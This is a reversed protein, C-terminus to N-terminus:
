KNSSNLKLRHSVTGVNDVFMLSSFNSTKNQKERSAESTKIIQLGEMCSMNRM